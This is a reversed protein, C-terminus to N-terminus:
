SEAHALQAVLPLTFTQGQCSDDPDAVMRSTLLYVGAGDPAVGVVTPSTAVVSTVTGATCAGAPGSANSSGASISVVRASVPHDIRVTFTGTGGPYLAVGDDRPTISATVPAATLPDGNGTGSSLYAAFALGVVLGLAVGVVVTALRRSQASM